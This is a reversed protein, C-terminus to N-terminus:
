TSADPHNVNPVVLDFSSRPRVRTFYYQEAVGWREYWEDIAGERQILRERRVATPMDVLVSLAILDSFEPRATYAGDLIVVAAPECVIRREALGHGADWDFPHWSAVRGAPLPELAESRLRRWDICSAVKEEPTRADWEADSGGSYFDDGDIVAAGTDVAVAAALTSKGAGSQGDLVVLMPMTRGVLLREIREVIARAADQDPHNM